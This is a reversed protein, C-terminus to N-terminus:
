RYGYKTAMYSNFLERSHEPTIAGSRRLNILLQEVEDSRDDEQGSLEAIKDAWEDLASPTADIGHQLALFRITEEAESSTSYPRNKM